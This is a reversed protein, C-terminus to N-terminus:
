AIVESTEDVNICDHMTKMAKQTLRTDIDVGIVLTPRFRAALGLAFVGDHSGIELM